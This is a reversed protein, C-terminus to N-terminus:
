IGDNVSTVNKLNEMIDQITQNTKFEEVWTENEIGLYIARCKKECNMNTEKVIYVNYSTVLLVVAVVILDSIRDRFRKKVLSKEREEISRM